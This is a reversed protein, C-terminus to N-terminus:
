RRVPFKRMLYSKLTGLAVAGIAPGYISMGAQLNFNGESLGFTAEETLLRVAALSPNAVMVSIPRSFAFAILLANAIKSFM